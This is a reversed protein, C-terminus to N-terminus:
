TRILEVLIYVAFGRLFAANSNVARNRIAYIGEALRSCPGQNNLGQM